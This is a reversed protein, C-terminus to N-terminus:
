TLQRLLIWTRVVDVPVEEWDYENTEWNYVGSGNTTPIPIANMTM